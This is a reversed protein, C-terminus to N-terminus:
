SDDGVSAWEDLTTSNACVIELREEGKAAEFVLVDVRCKYEKDQTGFEHISGPNPNVRV